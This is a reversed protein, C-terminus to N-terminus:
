AAKNPYTFDLNHILRASPWWDEPRFNQGALLYIRPAELLSQISFKIKAIIKIGKEFLIQDSVMPKDSMFLFNELAYRILASVTIKYQVAM